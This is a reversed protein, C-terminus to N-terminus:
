NISASAKSGDNTQQLLGLLAQYQQQTLKFDQDGDRQQDSHKSEHQTEV